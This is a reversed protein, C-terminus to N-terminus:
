KVLNIPDLGIVSNPKKTTTTTTLQNEELSSSSSSSSSSANIHDDIVDSVKWDDKEMELLIQEQTYKKYKTFGSPSIKHCYVKDKWISNRLLESDSLKLAIKDAKSIISLDAQTKYELWKLVVRDEGGCSRRLTDFSTEASVNIMAQTVEEYPVIIYLYKPRM